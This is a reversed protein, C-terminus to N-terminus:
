PPAVSCTPLFEEPAGREPGQEEEEKQLPRQNEGVARLIGTAARGDGPLRTYVSPTPGPDTLIAACPGDVVEGLLTDGCDRDGGPSGDVGGGVEVATAFDDESDLALERLGRGRLVM